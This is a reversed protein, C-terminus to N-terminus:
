KIKKIEFKTLNSSSNLTATIYMSISVNDYNYITYEEDKGTNPNYITYTASSTSGISKPFSVEVNGKISVKYELDIQYKQKIEKEKKGQIKKINKQIIVTYKLYGEQGKKIKNEIENNNNTDQIFELIQINNGLLEKLDGEIENKVANTDKLSDAINNRKNKLEVAPLLTYSRNIPPNAATSSSLNFIDNGININGSLDITPNSSEGQYRFTESSRREKEQPPISILDLNKIKETQWGQFTLDIMHLNAFMEDFQKKLVKYNDKEQKALQFIRKNYSYIIGIISSVFFILFLSLLIVTAKQSKLNKNYKFSTNM